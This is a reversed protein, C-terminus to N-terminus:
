LTKGIAERSHKKNRRLRRKRNRRSAKHALYAAKSKTKDHEEIIIFGRGAAKFALKFPKTNEIYTYSIDGAGMNWGNADFRMRFAAGSAAMIQTYSINQGMYNLVAQLCMPFPTLQMQSDVTKGFYIKPVGYLICSDMTKQIEGMENVEKIHHLTFVSDDFDLIVPAYVGPCIIRRGCLYATKNFESPNLGTCRRFARTFTDLNSFGYEFAIDTINKGSHRIEFVANAIKRALIYRSLSISTTKKFLDRIHTYTFGITSEL